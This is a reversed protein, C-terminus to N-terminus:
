TQIHTPETQLFFMVDNGGVPYGLSGLKQNLGQGFSFGGIGGAVKELDQDSLDTSSERVAELFIEVITQRELGESGTFEEVFAHLEDATFGYGEEAAIAVWEDATKEATTVREQLDKREAMAGVFFAVNEKSM